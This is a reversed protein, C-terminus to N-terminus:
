NFEHIKPKEDASCKECRPVYPIALLLEDEVLELASTKENAELSEFSEEEWADLEAADKAVYITSRSDVQLEFMTGCSQCSLGLRGQVSVVFGARETASAQLAAISGRVDHVETGDEASRVLLEPMLEGSIVYGVRCFQAATQRFNWDAVSAEVGTKHKATL